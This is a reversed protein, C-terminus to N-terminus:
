LSEPPAYGFNAIYIAQAVAIWVGFIALLILGLALIARFSDAELLDFAHEWGTDLGNERRRSLEYIGIAAVPGVLAFGAAMPYLLPVLNYGFTAMAIILGVVPYILSLFIVHTPMAWFDDLGKELADILDAPTIGRVRPLSREAGAATITEQYAM